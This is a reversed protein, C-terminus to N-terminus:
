ETETSDEFREPKVKKIDKFLRKLAKNLREQEKIEAMKIQKAASTKSYNFSHVM